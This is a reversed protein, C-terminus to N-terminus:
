GGEYNLMLTDIKDQIVTEDKNWFIDKVFCMEKWLPDRDLLSVSVHEWGMGDSAIIKLTRKTLKCPIYFLGNNGFTHDSKLMGESVRYGEIIQNNKKM